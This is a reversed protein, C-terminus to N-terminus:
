ESLISDSCSRFANLFPSYIGIVEWFIRGIDDNYKHIVDAEASSGGESSFYIRWRQTAAEFLSDSVISKMSSGNTRWGPCCQECSPIM